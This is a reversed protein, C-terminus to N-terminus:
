REVFQLAPEAGPRAGVALEAVFAKAARVAQAKHSVRAAELLDPRAARMLRWAAALAFKQLACRPPHRIRSRRQRGKIVGGATLGFAKTVSSNSAQMNALLWTAARM